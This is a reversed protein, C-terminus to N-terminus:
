HAAYQQFQNMIEDPTLAREYLKVEDLLGKFFAAHGVEFNGLCVHFDNAKAPGSREMVGQEKGDVYIRMTKGDFTGAIHVWRGTPLPANAKLHHSWDTLPIEFCPFGELIGLRYGTATGGGFVRNVMWSNAQGAVDTKVWCAITLGETLSLRPQSPVEVCGGECVLANGDVGKARKADRLKGGIRNGSSDLAIPANGEEDFAWWAVLGKEDAGKITAKQSVLKRLEDERKQYASYTSDYPGMGIDEPILDTHEKPAQTFVERVADLYGFGYERYPAIYHGEGWENWNDLILTKSGLQEKPFKRIINKAGVLLTKFEKPPIKWITGEDAWGSWAQSVTVVQPLIGMQQNKNIYGLQTQVAKEPTPNDPVYWCYAFSYDLGLQKMLELPKPDQGRYEGLLYLGDFGAKKCAERMLDFAKRVNEISGLDDILFEPRYIFLLPKNDIKVYSPHKFYNEIWFPLLNEMLDQENAVGALGKSQNEWMITFKMKSVFKSKFLAEHIASGFNMKVPEGQSARYWCYIFYDVGHEVAWKTEWDAVEPNEQAYFGLAPTREPHKLLQSWMSYKSAEWLPCNHAGVLIATKVPVPEPIYPLKKMEVSPLFSMSYTTEFSEEKSSANVTIAYLASEPAEIEWRLTESSADGITIEKIQEGNVLKVGKPLKISVKVKTPTDNRNEIEAIIGAPRLARALPKEPLLSRIRIGTSAEKTQAFTVGSSLMVTLVMYGALIPNM